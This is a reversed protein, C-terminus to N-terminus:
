AAGMVIILILLVVALGGAMGIAYGQLVGSQSPRISRAIWQPLTGFLNVLGDVLLKDIIHFINSLVWLPLRILYHYFEDVYWKNQAWRPIPGLAPLLADARSTAATTRGALHLLFAITIGIFGVIASVYYMVKHPDMGLFTGVAHEAHGAGSETAHTAETHADDPHTAGATEHHTGPAEVYATSAHVMVGVCGHHEKQIFYTPIALFSLVALTVLVANIRWGPPHPHFDHGGGGAGGAPTHADAHGNDAAHADEHGHGHDHDDHAHLEDGPECHEPGEFVRFYVRFTYYATLGATILLIWGIAQAGPIISEPTTFAQALIMDKSFYGSTILPFGALNLCGVLMTLGVIGWGQMKRVGSLKRLDLQGAFGHM